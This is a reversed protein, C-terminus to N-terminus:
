DGADRAHQQQMRMAQVQRALVAKRRTRKSSAKFRRAAAAAEGLHDVDEEEYLDDGDVDSSGAPSSSSSSSSGQVDARSQPLQVASSGSSSGTAPHDLQEQQSPPSGVAAVAPQLQQQQQGLTGDQQYRQQQVAELSEPGSLVAGIDAATALRWSGVPLDPEQLLSLGGITHRDLQIVTRGVAAFMRRIQHYRGECISIEATTDDLMHLAAPLLPTRDGQLQMQGSGFRQIAKEAEKGTLSSDLKARYCKWIGACAHHFLLVLWCFLYM